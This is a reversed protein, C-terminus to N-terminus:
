EDGEGGYQGGGEALVGGELALKARGFPNEPATRGEAPLQVQQLEEVNTLAKFDGGLGMIQATQPSLDPAEAMAKDWPDQIFVGDKSLPRVLRANKFPLVRGGSSAQRQASPAAFAPHTVVPGAQVSAVPMLVPVGQHMVYVFGAPPPPLVNGGGRSVPAPPPTDDRQREPRGSRAWKRVDGPDFPM